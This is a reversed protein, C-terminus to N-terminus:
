ATTENCRLKELFSQSFKEINKIQTKTYIDITRSGVSPPVANRYILENKFSELGVVFSLSIGKIYSNKEKQTFYVGFSEKESDM